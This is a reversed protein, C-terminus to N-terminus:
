NATQASIHMYAAEMLEADKIRGRERLWKIRGALRQLIPNPEEFPFDVMEPVEHENRM